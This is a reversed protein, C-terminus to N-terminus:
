KKSETVGSHRQSHNVRGVVERGRHSPQMKVTGRERPTLTETVISPVEAM